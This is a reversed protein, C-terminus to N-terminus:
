VVFPEFVGIGRGAMPVFVHRSGPDVAVSHAFPATPISTLWHDHMADIVGIVPKTTGIATATFFRRDTPTYWVEDTGGAIQGIEAQVKWSATQMILPHGVACGLLLQHPLGVALGNPQCLLPIPHRETLYPKGSRDVAILVIEGQQHQRTQPM